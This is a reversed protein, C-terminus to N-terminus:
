PNKAAKGDIYVQNNRIEITDGPMGICRSVFLPRLTSDQRLPSTFLVIDNQRPPFLDLCKNALIYDGEHLATEMAPTSIRYSELLWIRVAWVAGIM